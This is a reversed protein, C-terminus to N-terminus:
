SRDQARGGAPELTARRGTVEVLDGVVVRGSTLPRLHIGFLTKGKPDRRLAGLSRLPEADVAKEGRQQDITTIVCRGCDQVVDFSVDGISLGAWGDEAWAQAGEVVLNPRFRAMPTQQGAQRNFNDLSAANTLLVPYEDAFSVCGTGLATPRASAPQDMFVFRCPEGLLDSIWEAAQGSSAAADVRARFITVEQRQHPAPADLDVAGYDDKSLHLGGETLRAEVTALVPHERQTVFRGVADVVMWRRDGRPGWPELDLSPVAVGRMSKVPYIHLAAIRM